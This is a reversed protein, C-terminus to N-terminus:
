NEVHDEVLRIQAYLKRAEVEMLGNEDRQSDYPIGGGGM